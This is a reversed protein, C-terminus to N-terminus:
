SSQLHTYSVAVLNEVPRLMMKDGMEGWRDTEYYEDICAEGLFVLYPADQREM